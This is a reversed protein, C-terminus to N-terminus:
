CRVGFLALITLVTKEETNKEKNNAIETEHNLLTGSDDAVIVKTVELTAFVDEDVADLIQYVEDPVDLVSQDIM